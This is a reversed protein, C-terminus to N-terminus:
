AEANGESYSASFLMLQSEQFWCYYRRDLTCQVLTHDMNFYDGICLCWFRKDQLTIFQHRKEM